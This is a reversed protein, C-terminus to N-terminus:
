ERRAKLKGNSLNRVMGQCCLQCPLLLASTGGACMCLLAQELINSMEM